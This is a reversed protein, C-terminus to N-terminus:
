LGLCFFLVNQFPMHISQHPFVNKIPLPSFQRRINPKATENTKTPREAKRQKRERMKKGQRSERNEEKRREKKVTWDATKDGPHKAKRAALGKRGAALAEGGEQSGRNIRHLLRYSIEM